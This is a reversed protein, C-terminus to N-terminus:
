LFSRSVRRRQLDRSDLHVVLQNLYQAAQLCLAPWCSSEFCIIFSSASDKDCFLKIDLIWLLVSVRQCFFGYKTTNWYEWIICCLAPCMTTAWHINISWISWYFPLHSFSFQIIGLDIFLRFSSPFWDIEGPRWKGGRHIITEPLQLDRTNQLATVGHNRNVQDTDVEHQNDIDYFPFSFVQSGTDSQGGILM